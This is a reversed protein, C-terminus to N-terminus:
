GPTKVRKYTVIRGAIFVYQVRPIPMLKSPTLQMEQGKSGWYFHVYGGNLEVTDEM